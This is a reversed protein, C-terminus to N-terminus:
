CKKICCVLHACDLPAKQELAFSSPLSGVQYGPKTGLEIVLFCIERNSTSIYYMQTRGRFRRLNASAAVERLLFGESM